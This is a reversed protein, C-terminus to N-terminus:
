SGAEGQICAWGKTSGDSYWVFIAAQKSEVVTATSNGLISTPTVTKDGTGNAIVIAMQGNYHGDALGVAQVGTKSCLTIGSTGADGDGTLNTIDVQWEPSIAPKSVKKEIAM